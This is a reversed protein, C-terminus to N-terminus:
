SGEGMKPRRDETKRSGEETKGTFEMYKLVFRLESYTVKDGLAAKADGLSKSQTNSFYTSILKIKDPTLLLNIDLEGTGVYHALHGEITSAAM